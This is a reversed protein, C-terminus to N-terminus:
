KKRKTKTEEENKRNERDKVKQDYEEKKRQQIDRLFEVNFDRAHKQMMLVKDFMKKTELLKQEVSLKNQEQLMQQQMQVSNDKKSIKEEAPENIDNTDMKIDGRDEGNSNNDDDDYGDIDCSNNDDYEDDSKEKGSLFKEKDKDYYQKVQDFSEYLTKQNARNVKVFIETNYIHYVLPYQTEDKTFLSIRGLDKKSVMFYTFYMNPYEGCKSKLFKKLMKQEAIPSNEQTLAIIIFKNKNNQIIQVLDKISVVEWINGSM